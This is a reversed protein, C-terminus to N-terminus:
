ELHDEFIKGDSFNAINDLDAPIDYNDGRPFVKNTGTQGFEGDLGASIIQFTTKNAWDVTAAKSSQYPLVTEITMGSDKDVVNYSAVSYTRNDFFVYPAEKGHQPTYEYLPLKVNVQSNPIPKKLTWLVRRKPPQGSAPVVTEIGRSEDFPFMVIPDNPTALQPDANPDRSTLPFRADNCVQTLWFVIAESATPVMTKGNDDVFFEPLNEQHRPFAKRLHRVVINQANFLENNAQDNWNGRWTVSSFDPPYDGFKQKYSEIALHLQNLEQAIVNQRAKVVVRYLTPVLIAALIGIIAIVVLMEVLTFSRRRCPNATTM